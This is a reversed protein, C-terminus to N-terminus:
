HRVYPTHLRHANSQVAAIQCVERLLSAFHKSLKGVTIRSESVEFFESNHSGIVQCDLGNRYLGVIKKKEPICDRRKVQGKSSGRISESFCANFSWFWSISTNPTPVFRTVHLVCGAKPQTYLSTCTSLSGRMLSELSIALTHHRHVINRSYNCALKLYRIVLLM